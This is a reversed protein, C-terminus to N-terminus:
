QETWTDAIVIGPYRSKLYKHVQDVAALDATDIVIVESMWGNFGECPRNANWDCNGRSGIFFDSAFGSVDKWTSKFRVTTVYHDLKQFQREPAAEAVSGPLVAFSLNLPGDYFTLWNQISSRKAVVFITRELRHTLSGRFGAGQGWWGDMRLAPVTAGSFVHAGTTVLTPRTAAPTTLTTPIEAGNPGRGIWKLIQEGSSAPQDSANLAGYDATFWAGLNALEMPSQITTEVDESDDPDGSSELNLRGGDYCGASVLLAAIFSWLSLHRFFRM